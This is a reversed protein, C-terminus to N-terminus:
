PRVDGSTCRRVLADNTCMALSPHLCLTSSRVEGVTIERLFRDNTDMVRRWTITDPDIDLRAFQAVEDATLQAPDTKSIGLKELRQTM